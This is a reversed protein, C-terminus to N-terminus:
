NFDGVYRIVDRVPDYFHDDTILWGQDPTGKLLQQKLETSASIEFLASRIKEILAREVKVSAVWSGVGPIDQTEYVVTFIDGYKRRSSEVNQDWTAGIDIKGDMLAEIVAPHNDYILVNKFTRFPDIGRKKMMALPYAWGSASLKSVLGLNYKGPTRIFDDFTWKDYKAKMAVLYGKYTTHAKGQYESVGTAIYQLRPELDKARVYSVPAMVSIDINGEVINSITQEYNEMVLLQFKKGTRESLYGLLPRYIEKLQRQEGWPTIGFLVTDENTRIKFTSAPGEKGGLFTTLSIAAVAFVLALLAFIIRNM